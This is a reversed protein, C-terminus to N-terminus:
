ESEHSLETINSDSGLENIVKVLAYSINDNGGKSLASTLLLSECEEDALINEMEEDSLMDSLGDSCLLFIDRELIKKSASKFDIYSKAGGGFVNVLLNSPAEDIGSINRFSHDQSIQSLLSSRFRYLRSDGASIFMLRGEYYLLAVLTSGMGKKTIDSIGEDLIKCHIRQCLSEIQIKLAEDDLNSELEYIGDRLMELVIQSAFEGANAGGMGDAVAVAFVSSEDVRVVEDLVDDRLLKTGVLVMDENNQRILGINCVATIKLKM